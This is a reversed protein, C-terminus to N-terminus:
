SYPRYWMDNDGETFTFDFEFLTDASAASKAERVFRAVQAFYEAGNDEKFVKLDLPFDFNADRGNPHPFAKAFEEGLDQVLRYYLCPNFYADDDVFEVSVPSVSSSRVLRIPFILLPSVVDKIENQSVAIRWKLAGVSLFM